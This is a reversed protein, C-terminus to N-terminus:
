AGEVSLELFILVSDKPPKRPILGKADKMFAKKLCGTYM